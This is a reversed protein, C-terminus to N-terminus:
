ASARPKTTREGAQTRILERVKSCGSLWVRKASPNAAIGTTKLRFFVVAEQPSASEQDPISIARQQGYLRLRSDYRVCIRYGKM